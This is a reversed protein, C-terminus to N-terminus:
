CLTIGVGEFTSWNDSKAAKISAASSFRAADTLMQCYMGVVLSSRMVCSLAWPFAIDNSSVIPGHDASRLEECSLHKGMSGRMKYALHSRLSCKSRSYWSEVLWAISLPELVTFETICPYPLQFRGTKPPQPKFM